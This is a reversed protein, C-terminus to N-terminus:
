LEASAAFHCIFGGTSPTISVGSGNAITFGSDGIFAPTGSGSTLDTGAANSVTNVTSASYTYIVVTPIARKMAAFKVYGYYASNAIAASANITILGQNQANTPVAVGIPYSKEYYRQCLALEVSYPRQEFPTAVSGVELQLETFEIFNGITLGWNTAGALTAFNGPLWTNATTAQYIGTNIFGIRVYVGAANTNPINLTTPFTLTQTIKTPTNAAVTFTFVYSNYTSVGDVLSVCYTGAVNTNFIFSLTATKGLLVQANYGEIIQSCGAWYFTTAINGANATTVTNRVTNKTVGGYSLTSQSQTNAGTGNVGCSIYRDPGGYLAAASAILSGRQAITCAGNIILNRFGALQGGNQSASQSNGAITLNGSNDLNMVATEVLISGITTVPATYWAFAGNALTFKSYANTSSTSRWNTGDSYGNDALGFTSVSNSYLVGHGYEIATFNAGWASTLAKIGLNGSADVKVIDQTTAGYNGRALKMTGDAAAATLVFNNTATTSDGLQVNTKVTGAM